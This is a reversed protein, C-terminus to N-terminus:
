SSRVHEGYMCVRTRGRMHIAHAHCTSVCSPAAILLDSEESPLTIEASASCALLGLFFTTMGYRIEGEREGEREHERM